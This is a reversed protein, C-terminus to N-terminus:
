TICFVIRKLGKMFNTFDKKDAEIGYDKDISETILVIKGKLSSVRLKLSNIPKNSFQLGSQKKYYMTDYDPELDHLETLNEKDYKLLLRNTGLFTFKGKAYTDGELCYFVHIFSSDKRFLINSACCDCEAKSEVKASDIDPAFAFLKDALEVSKIETNKKLSNQSCSILLICFIFALFKTPFM